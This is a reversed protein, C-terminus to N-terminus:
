SQVSCWYLRLGVDIVHTIFIVCVSAEMKTLFFLLATWLIIINIKINLYIICCDVNIILLEYDSSGQLRHGWPGLRIHLGGNGM